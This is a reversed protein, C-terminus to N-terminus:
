VSIQKYGTLNLLENRQSLYYRFDESMLDQNLQCSSVSSFIFDAHRQPLNPKILCRGEVDFAIIHSDFLKHHNHCLWLGNHGSIAHTYKQEDDIISCNRIESVGWIHAGHIIEPIECGCISCRKIGIRNLLNYNYAASRLRLTDETDGPLRNLRLSTNYVTINGLEQFTTLSSQPLNTLDQESVAFVDIPRDAIKSLAVGFVTSEYKNAGYTKAYLQIRDHTKSIFSSNNSRNSSQNANRETIIEDVSVFPTLSNTCFSDLNLFEIGATLMLRYYVMHYDTFPNGQEHCFYYWLKKNHRSDAYFLNIATPVSQLSSNRGEIRKESLTIYHLTNGLELTLLRGKNYSVNVERVSFQSQGTIRLCIDELLERTLLTKFGNRIKQTHTHYTFVPLM